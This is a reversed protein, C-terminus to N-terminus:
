ACKEPRNVLLGTLKSIQAQKRYKLKSPDGM